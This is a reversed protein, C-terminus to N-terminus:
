KLIIPEIMFFIFILKQWFFVFYSEIQLKLKLSFIAKKQDYFYKINKTVDNASPISSPQAEGIQKGEKGALSEKNKNSQQAAKRGRLSTMKIGPNNDTKEKTPEAASAQKADDLAQRVFEGHAKSDIDNLALDKKNGTERTEEPEDEDVRASEKIVKPGSKEGKKASPPRVLKGGEKSSSQKKTEEQAPKRKEPEKKVPPEEQKPEEKKVPKKEVPKKEVPKSPKEQPPAAPKEEAAGSLKKLVSKVHPASDEGSVAARYMTQLFANTLEPEQGALIKSTRAEISEKTVSKSVEMVKQLFLVKKERSDYYKENLEEPSYLGEFFGTGKITEHVIDFLYKFPPKMLLKEKMPPKEFLSGFMQATEKWYDGM